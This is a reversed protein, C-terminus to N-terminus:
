TLAQSGFGCVLHRMGYGFNVLEYALRMVAQILNNYTKDEAVMGSHRLCFSSRACARHVHTMTDGTLELLVM